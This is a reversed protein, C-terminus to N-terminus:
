IIGIVSVLLIVNERVQFIKDALSCPGWRIYRNWSICCTDDECHYMCSASHNHQACMTLM